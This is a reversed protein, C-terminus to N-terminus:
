HTVVFFLHSFAYGTASYVGETIEVLRPALRMRDNVALTTAAWAARHKSGSAASHSRRPKLAKTKILKM